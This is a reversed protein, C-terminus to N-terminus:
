HRTLRRHIGQSEQSASRSAPVEEEKLSGESGGEAKAFDGDVGGFMQSSNEM